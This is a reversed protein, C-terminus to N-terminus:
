FPPEDDIDGMPLVEAVPCGYFNGQGNKKAVPDAHRVSIMCPLGIVADTDFEDGVQIEQGLLAEAWQRVLNDERNTLRDQTEGWARMGSYDGDNIKFEWVWKTFSSEENTKVGNKDKKFFKIEKESVETLVAPFYENEPLAYEDEEKMKTKPM